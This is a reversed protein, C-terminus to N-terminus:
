ESSDNAAPKLELRTIAADPAVQFIAKARPDAVVLTEGQWALGSPHVLPDGSAWKVPKGDAGIKWIARDYGDSLYANSESDVAVGLPFRLPRGAVIVEVKGTASVRLLTDDRRSIVWLREQADLYIATPAPVDAFHAVKAPGSDSPTLRVIRNLELDSVLLDGSSTVAIGMPIGIAGGTLAVPNDPQDFRYIERTASDGVLLKGDAVALSLPSYLPTRPKGIGRFYVSLRGDTVQWVGHFNRDAVFLNKEGTALALPYQLQDQQASAASPLALAFGCSLLIAPCNRHSHSSM